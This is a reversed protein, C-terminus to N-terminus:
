YTGDGIRGTQLFPDAAPNSSSRTAARMYSGGGKHTGSQPPGVRCLNPAFIFVPAGLLSLAAPLGLVKRVKTM